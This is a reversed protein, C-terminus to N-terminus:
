SQLGRFYDGQFYILDISPAQGTLRTLIAHCQGRHHTQHNFLHALAVSLKLTVPDPTSVPTYTFDGVLTEDPVDRIYAEIRADMEIGATQLSAFDEHLIEDLRTPCPGSGAFRHMWIQDAVLLHNLTGHLSNFAVACDRRYDEDSLKAVADFLLGNAWSNYHAFMMFHERTM